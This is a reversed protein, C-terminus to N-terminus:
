LGYFRTLAAALLNGAAGVGINWSGNAAKQVMKGIWKSVRAGLKSRSTPETDCRVADELERIDDGNIGRSKLYASLSDFSGASITMETTQNVTSNNIDGLIGQFNQISISPNRAAEEKEKETFSMDEGLIGRQELSLAWELIRTRVQEIIASIQNRGVVRLPRMRAIGDQMQMLSAEQEPPFRYTIVARDNTSRILDCLSEIPDGIQVKKLARALPADEIIFPVPGHYPNEAKLDGTVVRYEPLEDQGQYGSLEKTIWNRFDDLRLKTAVVLAKRLLESIGKSGDAALEQLQIVIPSKRPITM